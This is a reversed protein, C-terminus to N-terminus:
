KNEKPIKIITGHKDVFLYYRPDPVMVKSNGKEDVFIKNNKYKEYRNGHHRINHKLVDEETILSITQDKENM